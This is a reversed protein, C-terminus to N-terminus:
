MYPRQKQTGERFHLFFLTLATGWYNLILSFPSRTQHKTMEDRNQLGLFIQVESPEPSVGEIDQLCHAATIFFNSGIQLFVDANISKYSYTFICVLTAACRPTGTFGKRKQETEPLESACQSFLVKRRKEEAM